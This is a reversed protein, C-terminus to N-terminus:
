LIAISELPSLSLNKSDFGVEQLLKMVTVGLIHLFTNVLVKHAM